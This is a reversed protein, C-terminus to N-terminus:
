VPPYNNSFTQTWFLGNKVENSSFQELKWGEELKKEVKKKFQYVDRYYPKLKGKPSPVLFINKSVIDFMNIVGEDSYCYLLSTKCWTM